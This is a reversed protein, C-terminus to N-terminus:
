GIYTDKVKKEDPDEDKEEKPLNATLIQRLCRKM